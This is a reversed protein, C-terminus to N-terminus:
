FEHSEFEEYYKSLNENLFSIKEPENDELYKKLIKTAKIMEKKYGAPTQLKEDFYWRGIDITVAKNDFLGWNRRKKGIDDDIILKKTRNHVMELFSEILYMKYDEDSTKEYVQYFIDCKKQLIFFINNLDLDFNKGYKNKVKVRDKFVDAINLNVYILASDEKLNDFALKASSLNFALKRCRRNYHKKRYNDLFSPLSVKPFFYKTYYRSSDFFKLVYKKDQSEFIFCERGRTLYHFNQSLIEKTEDLNKEVDIKYTDDVKDFKTILSSRFGDTRNLALWIFFVLALFPLTNKLTKNMNPHM